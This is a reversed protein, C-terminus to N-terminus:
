GSAPRRPHWSISGPHWHRGCIPRWLRGSFEKPREDGKCLTLTNQGIRYIGFSTKGKLPNATTGADPLAETITMEITKPQKAPDLKFTM